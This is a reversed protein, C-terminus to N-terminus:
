GAIDQVADLLREAAAIAGGACAAIQPLALWEQTWGAGSRELEHLGAGAMAGMMAASHRALAVVLEADVPNVKHPMSSSSGGALVIAGVADQAMLAADMGLKGLARSTADLAVALDVVPTRDTHWARGPDRLDLRRALGARVAPGAGGLAELTGVPGGFQVPLAARRDRARSAAGRVAARWVGLRAAVTIPLAERMRTVAMLPRAGWRGALLDLRTALGDLRGAHDDLLRAMRLMLATDVADQSTAGHHLHPRVGPPLRARLAAVLGPVVMGDRRGRDRLTAADPPPGGLAAGIIAADAAPIVGAAAGAEALATWFRLMAAMDADWALQRMTATDATWAGLVPHDFPSASM